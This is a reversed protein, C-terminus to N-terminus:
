VRMNRACMPSSLWLVKSSSLKRLKLSLKTLSSLSNSLIGSYAKKKKLQRHRQKRTPALDAIDRNQEPALALLRAV